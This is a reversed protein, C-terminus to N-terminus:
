PKVEFRKGDLDSFWGLNDAIIHHNKCGPCTVIVVGQHYAQKSIKQTSRTLCVQLVAVDHAGTMWIFHSVFTLLHVKCTYVLHYHTSKIKGVADSKTDSTTTYTRFGLHTGPRNAALSGELCCQRQSSGHRARATTVPLPTCCHLATCYRYLLSRSCYCRMLMSLSHMAFALEFHLCLWSLVRSSCNNFFYRRVFCSWWHKQRLKIVDSWKIVDCNSSM